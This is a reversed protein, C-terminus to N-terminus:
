TMNKVREKQKLLIEKISIEDREEKWVITDFGGWLAHCFSLGIGLLAM